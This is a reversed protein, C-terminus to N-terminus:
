AIVDGYKRLAMFMPFRRGKATGSGSGGPGGALYFIPNGKVKGTAPFRVYDIRIKRSNANNRNEPVYLYGEFGSVPEGKRPTFEIEKENAYQRNRHRCIIRRYRDDPRADFHSAPHNNQKHQIKWINSVANLRQDTM